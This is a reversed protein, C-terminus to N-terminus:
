GWLVYINLILVLLSVCLIIAFTKFESKQQKIYQYEKQTYVHIHGNIIETKLGTKLKKM